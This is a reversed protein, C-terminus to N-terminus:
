PGGFKKLLELMENVSGPLLGEYGEKGNSVILWPTGTRPRAYADQWVKEAGATNVRDTWVRYDAGKSQLYQRVAVSQLIDIQGQPLTKLQADNYVILMKLGEGPIPAPSPPKPEPPKPEPPNPTPPIPTPPVPEPPPDGLVVVFPQTAQEGTKSAGVAMFKYRGAPLGRTPLVFARPDKLFESPFPQVNSLGVYVVSVADTNPILTVYEGAAKLEGPIELRPPEAWAGAALVVLVGSAFTRM